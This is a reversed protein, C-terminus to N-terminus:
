MGFDGDPSLGDNVGYSEYILSFKGKPAQAIYCAGDGYSGYLRMVQEMQERPIAVCGGTSAAEPVWCHLFLASGQGAAGNPNFGADLVYDYYGQYAPTGVHEGEEAADDVLKNLGDSWVHSEKVKIYNAPFGELAEGQGFPTNMRFVGIPTTKDGTVRHNSMGNLGLIGPTELREEWGEATKEYAYVKCSSGGTGEVVVLVKAEEPLVFSGARFSQMSVGPGMQAASAAMTGAGFSGFALAAALIKAMYRRKGALKRGKGMHILRGKETEQGLPFRGLFGAEKAQGM